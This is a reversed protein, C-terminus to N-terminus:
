IKAKAKALDAEHLPVYGVEKALESTNQLYFELFKKVYPKENLSKKSVYIFLPRSLPTYSGGQVTEISPEVPGSGGDVPVIKVKDM